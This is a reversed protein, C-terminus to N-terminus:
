QFYTLLDRASLSPGTRPIEHWSPIISFDSISCSREEPYTKGLHCSGVLRSQHFLFTFEARCCGATSQSTSLFLCSSCLSLLLFPWASPEQGHLGTERMGEPSRPCAMTASSDSPLDAGGLAGLTRVHYGTHGVAGRLSSSM